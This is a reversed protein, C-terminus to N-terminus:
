TCMSQIEGFGLKSLMLVLLCIHLHKEDAKISIDLLARGTKTISDFLENEEHDAKLQWWM